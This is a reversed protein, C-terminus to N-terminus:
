DFSFNEEDFLRVCVEVSEPDYLEGKKAQVEKLAEDIGHGPRYPRDSSMAEVVDAVAMIKAGPLIDKEKLGDPYGSGNLREHHQRVMQAIPEDFAIDKIIEFGAKSHLKILEFEVPELKGPKNLVEAPVYMKGIDHITAAMEVGQVRSDEWELNRAMASALKAVRRQHGATYPDRTEVSVSLAKIVGAVIQELHFHSDRLEARAVHFDTIDEGASVSLLLGGNEDRIFSNRWRILREDGNSCIVTNEGRATSKSEGKVIRAFLKKVMAREHYPVFNELWSRGVIEEERYGLLEAGYRNILVVKGKNDLIVVLVGVVDLYLQATDREKAVAEEAVIRDTIDRSIILLREVKDKVRSKVDISLEFWKKGRPLDLAYTAGRHWGKEAAIALAKRCVQGAEKPLVDTLKRGILVEPPVYLLENAPAHYGYIRGDPDVEFMLDPIARLTSELEEKAEKLQLEAIRRHTVDRIYIGVGTIENNASRIPNHSIEYYRRTLKEDGYATEEVFQEGNLVRKLRDKAKKKDAPESIYDFMSHDLEIEAGYSAKMATAYAKNFSTYRGQTDISFIPADSSNIIGDLMSYQKDLMEEAAVRETIDVILGDLFAEGDSDTRMTINTSLWSSSGDKRKLEIHFDRAAGTEKIIDILLERQKLDVYLSKMNSAARMLEDSSKYGLMKAFTDNLFDITGDVRTRVVGVIANELIARFREESEHLAQDRKQRKSIDRAVAIMSQVGAFQILKSSVEVPFTSGDKRIHITTFTAEGKQLVEKIRNKVFGAREPLNIDRVTLKLFEDKSYGRQEYAARNAYLFNGQANIIFLADPVRDLVEELLATDQLSDLFALDKVVVRVETAEDM